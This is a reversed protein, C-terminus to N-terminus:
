PQRGSRERPLRRRGGSPSCGTSASGASHRSGSSGPWARSTTGRSTAARRWGASGWARAMGEQSLGFFELPVHGGQRGVPRRQLTVSGELPLTTFAASLTSVGGTASSLTSAAACAPSQCSHRAGPCDPNLGHPPQSGRSTFYQSAPEVFQGGVGQPLASAPFTLPLRPDLPSRRAPVSAPVPSRAIVWMRLRSEAPQVRDRRLRKTAASAAAAIPKM